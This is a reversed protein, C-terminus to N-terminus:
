RVWLTYFGTLTGVTYNGWSAQATQPCTSISPVQTANLGGFFWCNPTPMPPMQGNGPCNGFSGCNGACGTVSHSNTADRPCTPDAAKFAGFDTTTCADGIHGCTDRSGGTHPADNPVNEIRFGARETLNRYNDTFAIGTRPYYFKLIRDGGMLMMQRVNALAITSHDLVMQSAVTPSTPPTFGSTLTTWTLGTPDVARVMALTWGGGDMAMDCYATFKPNQGIEGDPDLEFTGSPAGPARSRVEMCSRAPPLPADIPADVQAVVQADVRNNVVEGCGAGLVIVIVVLVHTRVM